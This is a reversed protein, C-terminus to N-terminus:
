KNLRKWTSAGIPDVWKWKKVWRKRWPVKYEVPKDPDERKYFQISKWRSSSVWVSVDDDWHSWSSWKSSLSRWSWVKWMLQRIKDYDTERLYNRNYETPTWDYVRYKLMDPWYAKSKMYNYRDQFNKFYWYDWWWNWYNKWWWYNKRWWYWKKSYTKKTYWKKEYETEKYWELTEEAYKKALDDLEQFDKYWYYLWDNVATRIWKKKMLEEDKMIYPILTEWHMLAWQSLARKEADSVALWEIHDNLANLVVLEAQAFDPDLSGDERFVWTHDFIQMFATKLKYADPNGSAAEIDVVLQSTFQKILTNNIKGANEWKAYVFNLDKYNSDWPESIFKGLEEDHTKAYDMIIQTWAREKDVWPIYEAYKKAVEIQYKKRVEEYVEKQKAKREEKIKEKFDKYEKTEEWNKYRKEKPFTLYIDNDPYAVSHAYDNALRYSEANMIFALAQLWVWPKDATLYALTRIAERNQAKDESKMKEYFDDIQEKTLWNKMLYYIIDEQRKTSWSYATEWEDTEYSYDAYLKDDIWDKKTQLRKTITNYVFHWNEDTMDTPFRNNVLENYADTKYFDNVAKIFDENSEFQWINWQKKFPLNYMLWTNFNDMNLLAKVDKLLSKQKSIYEIEEPQMWFVVNLINRPWSPLEYKTFDDEMDQETYYLFWATNDQIAKTITNIRYKLFKQEERWWDRNINSRAQEEIKIAYLKKTIINCFTKFTEMAAAEVSKFKTQWIGIQWVYNSIFSKVLKFEPLTELAAIWWSFLELYKFYEDIWDFFSDEKDWPETSLRKVCYKSILATVYLKEMFYIVEKDELDITKRIEFIEDSTKWWALLEDYYKAFKVWHRWDLSKLTAKLWWVTKNRWWAAFFNWLVKRIEQLPQFMLRDTPSYNAYLTPNWLNARLNANSEELWKHCSSMVKEFEEPNSVKLMELARDLEDLNTIGPFYTEFFSQIVRNNYMWSMLMDWLNYVWAWMLEKAQKFFWLTTDLMSAWLEWKWSLSTDFWRKAWFKWWDWDLRHKFNQIIDSVFMTSNLILLTSAWWAKSFCMFASYLWPKWILNIFNQIYKTVNYFVMSLRTSMEKFKKDWNKALELAFTHNLQEIQQKVSLNQLYERTLKWYTPVDTKFMKGDEWRVYLLQSDVWLEYKKKLDNSLFDWVTKDWKIDALKWVSWWFELFEEISNFKHWTILEAMNKETVFSRFASPSMCSFLNWHTSNDGFINYIKSRWWNNEHWFSEINNFFAYIGRNIKEKWFNSLIWKFDEIEQWDVIKTYKKMYWQRELFDTYWMLMKKVWDYWIPLWVMEKKSLFDKAYKEVWDKNRYLMWKVKDMVPNWDDWLVPLFNDPVQVVSRWNWPKHYKNWFPLNSLNIDQKFQKLEEPTLFKELNTKMYDQWADNWDLANFWEHFNLTEGFWDPSICKNINRGIRKSWIDIM